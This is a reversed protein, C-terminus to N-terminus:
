RRQVGGGFFSENKQTAAYAYLIIGIAFMTPVFVLATTVVLNFQGGYMSPDLTRNLHGITPAAVLMYIILAFTLATAVLVGRLGM